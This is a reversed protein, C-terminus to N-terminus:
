DFVTLFAYFLTPSVSGSPLPRSPKNIRDIEIDFLDNVVMGGGGIFGAAFSALVMAIVNGATGGALLCSM